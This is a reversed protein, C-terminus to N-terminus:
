KLQESRSICEICRLFTEPFQKGDLVPTLKIENFLNCHKNHNWTRSLYKCKGCYNDNTDHIDIEKTFILNIKM